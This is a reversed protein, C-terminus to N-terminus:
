PCVKIEKYSQLTSGESSHKSLCIRIIKNKNRNCVNLLKKLLVEEFELAMNSYLIRTYM